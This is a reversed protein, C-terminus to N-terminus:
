QIAQQRTKKDAIGALVVIRAQSAAQHFAREVVDEGVAAGYVEAGDQHVGDLRTFVADTMEAM